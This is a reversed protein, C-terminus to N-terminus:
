ERGEFYYPAYAWGYADYLLVYKPTSTLYESGRVVHTVGMLHDDIVHCFNYTPYGDAKMLIQDQLESNDVTIEGFVADVFKTEGDIPMKQRIVRPM